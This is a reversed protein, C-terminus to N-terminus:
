RGRYSLVELGAKAGEYVAKSIQLLGGTCDGCAFLGPVTTEMNENVVIHNNEVKAGIKRALDNSSATGIAVFVGNIQKKTNDEFEIEEIKNEGRFEKIKRNDINVDTDINRNEIMEEGNTLMTVSNVIPKLQEMEHIAYNGNGLVAVDKGKFFFADCIACYSVGKGEFERIGKINPTMRNTGTALIVSKAKYHSNVTEIEFMELYNLSVVEDEIIEVGLTKAQKIGNQYLEQGSIGNKFGYYNDIKEAKELASNKKSIILVSLKRRKAYLSASIGAPGSGVIIVDYIM